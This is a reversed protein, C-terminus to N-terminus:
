PESRGSKFKHLRAIMQNANASDIPGSLVPNALDHVVEKIENEDAEDFQIDDRGEILNAWEELYVSDIEKDLFRLIKDLVQDARLVVLPDSDFEFPEIMMRIESIPREGEVLAQLANM